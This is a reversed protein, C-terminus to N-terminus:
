KKENLFYSKKKNIFMFQHVHVAANLIKSLNVPFHGITFGFLLLTKLKEDVEVPAPLPPLKQPDFFLLSMKRSHDNIWFHLYNSHFIRKKFVCSDFFPPPTAVNLLVEQSCHFSRVRWIGAQLDVDTPLHIGM